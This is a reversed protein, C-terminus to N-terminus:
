GKKGEEEAHRRFNLELLRELVVRRAQESITFRTRDNEPLFDLEHFGHEPDIDLWGYARLVVRDMEAHLERLRTLRALLDLAAGTGGSKAVVAALRVEELEPDHFLNYTKTLGLNLLRMLEAREEYYVKGAEELPARLSEEIADTPHGSRLCSPFPFTEFIDSPTYRMRSELLSSYKWAWSEHLSSELIGFFHLSDIAIIVISNAFVPGNRVLSFRPYKTASTVIAIMHGLGVIANYLGMCREAFRWWRRKYAERNSKTREPKVLTEVIKLCDPYDEAVPGDYGESACEWADEPRDIEGKKKRRLPWDFFNIVWRSPSGDPRSNFDEGSLYPFLVKTNREDKKILSIAEDNSLVFGTGLVVSGQFSKAANEMLRKPNGITAADDLYPTIRDTDKGNLKFPGSEKGKRIGLLSVSVAAKGPWPLSKYAWFITGEKAIVDLCGERTGGEAITKTAILAM